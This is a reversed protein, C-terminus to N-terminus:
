GRAWPPVGIEQDPRPEVQIKEEALIRQYHEICKPCAGDGEIWEPHDQKIRLILRGDRFREDDAVAHARVAKIPVIDGCIPCKFEGKGPKKSNDGGFLNCFHKKWLSM